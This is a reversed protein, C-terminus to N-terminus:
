EPMQAGSDPYGLQRGPRSAERFHKLNLPDTLDSVAIKQGIPKSVQLSAVYNAFPIASAVDADVSLSLALASAFMDGCHMAIGAAPERTPLAPFRCVSEHEGASQILAAGDEGLTVVIRPFEGAYKKTIREALTRLNADISLDQRPLQVAGSAEVDNPKFVDVKLGAFKEWERKPDVVVM